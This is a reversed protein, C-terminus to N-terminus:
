TLHISVKASTSVLFDKDGNFVAYAQGTGTPKPLTVSFTVVGKDAQTIAATKTTVTTGKGVKVTVTGSPYLGGSHGSVRVTVLESSSHKATPKSLTLTTGTAAQVISLPATVTSSAAVTATGNYKASVTYKGVTQGAPITFKGTGAASIQVTAKVSGYTVAATGGSAGGVTISGTVAHGYAVSSASLKLAITSATKSIMVDVPPSVAALTAVTAPVSATLSHDGVTFGATVEYTAVGSTVTGTGLATTGDLFTVVTGDPVDSSTTATLTVPQGLTPAAPDLTLAVTPASPITVTVTNSASSPDGTGDAQTASLTVAGAALAATPTCSWV